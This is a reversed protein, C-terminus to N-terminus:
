DIVLRFGSPTIFQLNEVLTSTAQENFNINAQYPM